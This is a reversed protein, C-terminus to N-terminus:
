LNTSRRLFAALFSPKLTEKPSEHPVMGEGTPPYSLFVATCPTIMSLLRVVAFSAKLRKCFHYGRLAVFGDVGGYGALKLNTTLLSLLQTFPFGTAIALRKTRM